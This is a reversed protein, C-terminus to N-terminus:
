CICSQNNLLWASMCLHLTWCYHYLNPFMPQTYVCMRSFVSKSVVTTPSPVLGNSNFPQQYSSWNSDTEIPPLTTGIGTGSISTTPSWTCAIPSLTIATLIPSGLLTVIFDSNTRLYASFTAVSIFNSPSLLSGGDSSGPSFSTLKPGSNTTVLLVSSPSPISTLLLSSKIPTYNKTTSPAIETVRASSMETLYISIDLSNSINPTPNPTNERENGSIFGYTSMFSTLDPGSMPTVLLVSSSTPSLPPPSLNSEELVSRTSSFFSSPSFFSDGDSSCPSFSTLDQGSNTTVLLASSPSPIFLPLLSSKTPTNNEINSTTIENGKVSTMIPLYTSLDLSNTDPKTPIPTNERENGSNSSFTAVSTSSTPSLSPSSLSSEPIIFFVSRTSPISSSPSVFSDGDSSVPSFSTLDQGSNTTVLLASNPSPISTLQNIPTYNDTTSPAIENVGASSMETLYISIDLSNSITQTPSPTNERENGSTSSPTLFSDGDSSGPSFSTLDQGSNTTVLLASNPSPISTLQNIPTYSDTTSLAIENVGASSMETLYISIDLSNSITQTPSPTNERENGSTSSPTLFSDGDSSGPSFSTLDQGSNTTVLLASNPSPISTLQNIPTYSDTTSPAIENVGASSMETLYISIDLSNSITQTPSPTNERENGSTSSPTLFSDGDSSGPSFSTLDPGSMPTVLLVSSPSPISTILLSRIGPSTNPLLANENGSVSGMDPLYLIVNTYRSM